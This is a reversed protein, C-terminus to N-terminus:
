RNASGRAVALLSGMGLREMDADELVEVSTNDFRGTFERAQDALYAPNCINPPLNGLERAFKVGAAIAQGQALADEAGDGAALVSLRRLGPEGERAKNDKGLTATYRYCAHDSAIVAQRVTWAGDHGQVPADSLTFLAHSVPGTKLAGAADAVAKLYQAAGFKASEGLGVVLVRPAAIGDLDHLLATRGTKGSADGRGLLKALRGGSAADLAKGAPTLTNDAFAGVVVCDAQQSAADGHFLDFELAMRCSEPCTPSPGAIAGPRGARLIRPAFAASATGSRTTVAAADWRPSTAPAPWVALRLGAAAKVWFR